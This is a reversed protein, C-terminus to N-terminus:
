RQLDTVVQQASAALTQGASVTDLVDAPDSGTLYSSSPGNVYTSAAFTDFRQQASKIAANSDDVARRSDDVDRQAAAANDRATQVDVIAKNVSEQQAQINAGLEQLKQNVNAIAAVLSGISDPSAPEAAAIGGPTCFATAMLIGFSALARPTRRM